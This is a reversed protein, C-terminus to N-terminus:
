FCHNLNAHHLTAMNIENYGLLNLIVSTLVCGFYFKTFYALDAALGISKETSVTGAFANAMKVISTVTAM